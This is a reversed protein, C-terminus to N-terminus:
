RKRKAKQKEMAVVPASLSKKIVGSKKSRGSHATLERARYRHWM